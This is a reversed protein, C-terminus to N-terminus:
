GAHDTVGLLTNILEENEANKNELAQIAELLQQREQEKEQIELISDIKHKIM